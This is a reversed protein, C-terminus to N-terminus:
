RGWAGPLYKALSQGIMANIDTARHRELLRQREAVKFLPIFTNEIDRASPQEGLLFQAKVIQKTEEYAPLAAELPALTQALAKSQVHMYQEIGLGASALQNFPYPSNAFRNQLAQRIFGGLMPGITEIASATGLVMQAAGTVRSFGARFRGIFKSISKAKQFEPIDKGEHDQLYRQEFWKFLQHKDLYWFDDRGQADKKKQKTTQEIDKLRNLAKSADLTLEIKAPGLNM